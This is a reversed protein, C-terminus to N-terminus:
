AGKRLSVASCNSESREIGEKEPRIYRQYALGYKSFHTRKAGIESLLRTLWMPYVGGIKIEMLRQDEPILLLSAAQENLDLAWNRFSLHRDFTIRIGPDNPHFWADRDYAIVAAPSLDYQHLLWHIERGVQGAADPMTARELSKMADQLPLAARRKYVVGNYKKKIEVFSQTLCGPEGYARLRLKEKYVPRALSARILAYDPTDYYLSQVKPSGFDMRRFGLGLLAMEMSAAQHVSLLYKAEVRAFSEEM